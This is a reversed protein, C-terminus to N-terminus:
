MKSATMAFSSPLSRPWRGRMSNTFTKLTGSIACKRGAASMLETRRLMRFIKVPYLEGRGFVYIHASNTDAQVVAFRPNQSVLKILPYLHPRDFVFFLNEEFPVQFEYTKFFGACAFVAVGQATPDLGELYENIKEVDAEFSRLEDSDEPFQDRSESIRKKLVTDFTRTGNENVSTDLYASIFPGQNAEFDLLKRLFNYRSM